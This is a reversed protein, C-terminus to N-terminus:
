QLKFAIIGGAYAVTSESGLNITSGTEPTGKFFVEFTGSAVSKYGMVAVNDRVTPLLGSSGFGFVNSGSNDSFEIKAQCATDNVRATCTGMVLWDGTTLTIKPAGATNFVMAVGTGSGTQNSNTSKSELVALPNLAVLGTLLEQLTTKRLAVDTASHVLLTDASVPLSKATQDTIAGPVLIASDVHANLNTYSVTNGPSGATYTTGKQIQAM